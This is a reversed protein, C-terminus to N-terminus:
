GLSNTAFGPNDSRWPFFEMHSFLCTTHFMKEKGNSVALLQAPIYVFGRWGAARDPGVCEISVCCVWGFLCLILFYCKWHHSEAFYHNWAAPKLYGLIIDLLLFVFAVM